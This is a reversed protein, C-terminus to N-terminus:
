ILIGCVPRIGQTRTECPKSCKQACCDEEARMGGAVALALVGAALWWINRSM